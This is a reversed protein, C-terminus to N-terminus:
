TGEDPLNYYFSRYAEANDSKPTERKRESKVYPTKKETQIWHALTNKWDTIPAGTKTKWGTNRYYSYFKEAVEAPASLVAAYARVAELSPPFAETILDSVSISKKEKSEKEKSKKTANDYASEATEAANDRTEAVYIKNKPVSQFGEQFDNKELLNYETIQSQRRETAHLYRMQIGRSTLINRQMLETSFLNCEALYSIVDKVTKKDRVWRSGISRILVSALKDLSEFHYYYGNQYILCLLRTYISEGLPGYKFQVDFLKEDEYITVDFPFYDLGNKRPRAM